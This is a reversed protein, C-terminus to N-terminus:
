SLESCAREEDKLLLPAVRAEGGRRGGGREAEWRLSAPNVFCCSPLAAHGFSIQVLGDDNVLAGPREFGPERARIM